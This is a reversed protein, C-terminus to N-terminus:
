RTQGGDRRLAQGLEAFARKARDRPKNGTLGSWPVLFGFEADPTARRDRWFADVDAKLLAQRRRRRYRITLRDSAVALCGEAGGTAILGQIVLLLAEKPRLGGLDRTAEIVARKAGESGQVGGIVATVGQPGDILLFKLSCLEIGDSLRTLALAHGGEHRGGACDALALTLAYADTRGAVQGLPVHAGRWSAAMAAPTMLTAALDFHGCVLELRRRTPLGHCLFKSLPKQLLADDPAGLDHQGALRDLHRLWTLTAGPRILARGYFLVARKPTVRRWLGAAQAFTRNIQDQVPFSPVEACPLPRDTM